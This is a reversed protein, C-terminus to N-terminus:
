KIKKRQCLSGGLLTKFLRTDYKSKNKYILTVPKVLGNREKFERLAIENRSRYQARSEANGLVPTKVPKYPDVRNLCAEYKDYVIVKQIVWKKFIVRCKICRIYIDSQERIKDWLRNLNQVNCHFNCDGLHRSLAQFYTVGEYKKCLQGQYQSPFYVGADSIYIHAREPYPYDYPTLDHLIFDDFTNLIDLKSLDLPIFASKKCHYDVNSIYPENARAIVNAMLIDKGTGRLGTVIVNGIDFLKAVYRWHFAFVVTFITLLVALSIIIWILNVVM